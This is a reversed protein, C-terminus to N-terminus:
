ENSDDGPPCIVSRVVAGLRMFEEYDTPKRFYYNAGLRAARDRDHPSNSSTVVVVPICMWAPNQRIRLLIEDGTKRPLNLDLLVVHPHPLGEEDIKDMFNTMQEGDQMVDLHFDLGELTLAERILLVDGPNDEALLARIPLDLKAAGM